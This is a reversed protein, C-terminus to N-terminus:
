PTADIGKPMEAWAVVLNLNDTCDSYMYGEGDFWLNGKYDYDCMEFYEKKNDFRFQVLYDGDEKPKEDPYEHWVIEERTNLELWDDCLGIIMVDYGHKFPVSEADDKFMEVQEKTYEM